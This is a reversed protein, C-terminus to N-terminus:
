EKKLVELWRFNKKKENSEPYRELFLHMCELVKFNIELQRLPEVSLARYDIEDDMLM